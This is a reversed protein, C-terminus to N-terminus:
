SPPPPAGLLYAVEEAQTAPDNFWATHGVGDWSLLKSGHIQAALGVGWSYPTAPDNRGSVVLVPAAGRVPTPGWPDAARVPWGLCGSQVDWGEVFGQTVPAARRIERQRAALDPYDRVDSPFDHCTIARYAAESAVPVAFLSADPAPAIARALGTALTSWNRPLALLAYGTYAIQPATAGSPTSAAPIPARRARDLLARYEAAIDRGRLACDQTSQCWGAFRGFVADEARAEDLALRRSGVTHDVAGDLVAARLRGPYLRAYTAGLLSGYSLGLFSIRGAGLAIRVAEFDRAASITDVHDILPGTARRCGEGVDRNYAALRDYEARSGPFQTVNLDLTPKECAIAPRSDGVGRADVGVLDFRERLRAPFMEDAVEKLYPAAPDGPGGPNFLLSGIRHAPDAAELRTLAVTIKAGAPKAWDLPVSLAGCETGNEACPRWDPARVGFAAVPDGDAARAAGAGGGTMVVGTLVLALGRRM